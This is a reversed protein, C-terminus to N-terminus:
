SLFKEVNLNYTIKSDGFLIISQFDNQEHKMYFFRMLINKKLVVAICNKVGMQKYQNMANIILANPLKLGSKMDISDRYQPNIHFTLIEAQVNDQSTNKKDLRKIFLYIIAQFIMILIKPKTFSRKIVTFANIFFYHKIIKKYFNRSDGLCLIFGVVKGDNTGVFGFSKLDDITINPYPEASQYSAALEQLQSMWQTKNWFYNKQAHEKSNM